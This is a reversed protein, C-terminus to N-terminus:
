ADSPGGILAGRPVNFRENGLQIQKSHLQFDEAQEPPHSLSGYREKHARGLGKSALLKTVFYRKQPDYNM